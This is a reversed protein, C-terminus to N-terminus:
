EPGGDRERRRHVASHGSERRTAQARHSRRRLFRQVPDSSAVALGLRSAGDRARGRVVSSAYTGFTASPGVRYAPDPRQVTAAELIADAVREPSNIGPGGAQVAEIAGLARYLDDYTPTHEISEVEVVARDYFDTAVIGPRVIVVDVGTGSLEQRLADSASELAFKSATYVGIGPLSLGGVGATVNVITGRGRERMRPLAARVLRLPGFANVEFQRRVKDIPVDEIAGFQGYGANNVLCDLQDREAFVGEVVAEVQGDDTVDLEATHCGLDDLDRLDDRDRATAYVEWGDDLFQLATARGIGSSCGTILATREM